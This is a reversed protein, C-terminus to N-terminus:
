IIIIQSESFVRKNSNKDFLQFIREHSIDSDKLRKIINRYEESQNILISKELGNYFETASTTIIFEDKIDRIIGPQLEPYVELIQFICDPIFYEMFYEVIQGYSSLEVQDKLYNLDDKSLDLAVMLEEETAGREVLEKYFKIKALFAAEEKSITIASDYFINDSGNIFKINM